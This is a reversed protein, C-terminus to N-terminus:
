STLTLGSANIQSTVPKLPPNTRYVVIFYSRAQLKSEFELYGLWEWVVGSLEMVGCYNSSINWFLEEVRALHVHADRALHVHADRALHVHATV